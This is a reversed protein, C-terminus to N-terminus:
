ATLVEPGKQSLSITNGMVIVGRGAEKLALHLTLCMGEELLVTEEKTILPFEELGLGIGHGLGYNGIYGQNDERQLYGMTEEYFQSVAKGPKLGGVIKKYLGKGDEVQLETLSSEEALFTRVGESWYREFAVALYLILTQGPSVPVDEPPRFAWNTEEPRAVLFRLDEAGELRGERDLAVELTRENITSFPTHSVFEFAERVIRSSRRIQDAEKESKVARLDRIIHGSDVVHCKELAESLAEFEYYPMFERLGVFGITSPILNKERLFKVCEGTIDRCPRADELWMTSKAAPLDRAFGEYILVAEGESPVAIIGGRSMKLLFNSVYCLNGYDNVGNGYLLLVDINSGKMAGRIKEIRQEFEREPMNIRDWVDRGRKLTPQLTYM